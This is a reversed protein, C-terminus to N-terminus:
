PNDFNVTFSMYKEATKPIIEIDGIRSLEKIFLHSDYGELNHFVVPVFNKQKLKTLNCSNHAAGRYKGTLHCHDRVKQDELSFEKGCLYCVKSNQFSEEEEQSMVIGKENEMLHRIRVIENELIKCFNLSTESGSFLKFTNLSEDLKCVTFFAFASAEHKQTKVINKQTENISTLISEFDAYIIFPVVVKNQLNEFKIFSQKSLSIKCAEYNQCYFEHMELEEKSGFSNSCNFCMNKNAGMLKELNTILVYHNKYLLLNADSESLKRFKFPYIKQVKPKAANLALKKKSTYNLSFVNIRVGNLSELRHFDSLKLPFQLDKSLVEKSIGKWNFFEQLCYLACLADKNKPNRCCNLKEIEPPLRKYCGGKKTTHKTTKLKIKTIKEFVLGYGEYDWDFKRKIDKIMRETLERVNTKTAVNYRLSKINVFQKEMKKNYLLCEVDIEVYKQESSKLTKKITKLNYSLFKKQDEVSDDFNVKRKEEVPELTIDEFVNMFRRRKRGLIRCLYAVRNERSKCFNCYSRMKGKSIGFMELPRAEFCKSCTKSLVSGTNALM